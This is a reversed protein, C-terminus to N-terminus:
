RLPLPGSRFATRCRRPRLLKPTLICERGRKAQAAKCGGRDSFLVTGSVRCFLGADKLRRGKPIAEAFLVAQEAPSFLLRRRLACAFLISFCGTRSDCVAGGEARTRGSVPCFFVFFCAATLRRNRHTRLAQRLLRRCSRGDGAQSQGSTRADHRGGPPPM